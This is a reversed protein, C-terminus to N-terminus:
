YTPLINRISAIDPVMTSSPRMNWTNWPQWVCTCALSALLPDLTLKKKKWMWPNTKKKGWRIGLIWVNDDKIQPTKYTQMSNSYIISEKLAWGIKVLTIFGMRQAYPICLKCLSFWFNACIDRFNIRTKCIHLTLM